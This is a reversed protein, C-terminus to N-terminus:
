KLVSMHGGDPGRSKNTRGAVVEAVTGIHEPKEKQVFETAEVKVLIDDRGVRDRLLRPTKDHGGTVEMVDGGGDDFHDLPM